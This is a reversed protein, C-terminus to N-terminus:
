RATWPPPPPVYVVVPKCEPPAWAPCPVILPPRPKAAQAASPILIGSAVVALAVLIKM